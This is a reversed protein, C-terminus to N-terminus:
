AFGDRMAIRTTMVLCEGTEGTSMLTSDVDICKDKATEDESLCCGELVYPFAGPTALESSM